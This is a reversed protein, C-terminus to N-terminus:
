KPKLSKLFKPQCGRLRINYFYRMYSDEPSFADFNGDYVVDFADFHGWTSYTHHYHTGQCDNMSPGYHPALSMKLVRDAISVDSPTHFVM